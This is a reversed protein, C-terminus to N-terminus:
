GSQTSNRSVLPLRPGLAIGEPGAHVVHPWFEVGRDVAMWFLQAFRPDIFDAPGFCRGEPRQVALFVGVRVGSQALSMLELLHKQGRTTVADPFCAVQDEVMTVNKAEIWLEGRPGYLKADLRSDGHVAESLFHTYGSVEPSAGTEWIRKLLRNPTSTNVGIWEGCPRVLELTYPLKRKPSCAPSIFVDMGPRLLGLMSGSNNTHVTVPRGDVLVHVLFRKERAVFIAGLSGCPFKLLHQM